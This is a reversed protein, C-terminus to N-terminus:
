MRRIVSNLRHQRMDRHIGPANQFTGAARVVSLAHIVGPIWLCFTLLVNLLVRFGGRDIMLVALPPCIIALVYRM